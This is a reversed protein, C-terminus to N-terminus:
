AARVLDGIADAHRRFTREIAKTEAFAAALGEADEKGLSSFFRDYSIVQAAGSPHEWEPCFQCTFDRIQRATLSGFRRWVYSLVDQDAVSLEDLGDAPWDRAVYVENGIGPAMFEDWEKRAPAAGGILHMTMADAPGDDTSILMDGLLPEDYRSAFERDALYILKILILADIRGGAEVTFFAAVQAARRIDFGDDMSFGM